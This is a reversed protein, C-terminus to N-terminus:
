LLEDIVDLKKNMLVINNKATEVKHKLDAILSDSKKSKAFFGMNNELQSIDQEVQKIKNILRNRETILKNHGDSEEKMAEAKSRFIQINKNMGDLNLKDYINNILTRYEQQLDAKKKIPVFGIANWRRQIDQVFAIRQENDDPLITTKLEEILAQKAELNNEFESEVTGFHEAKRDFFKDCASRFRKWMVESAQHSVSGVKKWKKQLNILEDTTKKWDTSDQLAEAAECLQEKAKLNESQKVKLSKFFLRKQDFFADCIQRFEAYIKDNVSKPAPGTKRWEEQVAMVKNSTEEFERAQTLTQGTLERLKEILQKKIELNNTMQANRESRFAYFKESVASTAAKFRAWIKEREEKSVMGIERWRKHLDQVQSFAKSILPEDILREAEECLETKAELNKKLDLTRLERNIKFYDFIKDNLQTYQAQMDHFKAAPVKGISKWERILEHFEDYIDSGSEQNAALERLREIIRNKKDFNQLQERELEKSENLKMEKYKHMAEDVMTDYEDDHRAFDEAVGGQAVFDAKQQEALETTLKRFQRHAADVWNKIQAARYNDTLRKLHGALETRSMEAVDPAEIEPTEEQADADNAETTIESANVNTGTESTQPLNNEAALGEHENLEM